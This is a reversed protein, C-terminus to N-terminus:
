FSRNRFDKKDFTRSSHMKLNVLFISEEITDLRTLWEKSTVGIVTEYNRTRQFNRFVYLAVFSSSKLFM